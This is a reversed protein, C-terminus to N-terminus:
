NEEKLTALNMALALAGLVGAKQGLKPPVIYKDLDSLIEKTQIYGNLMTHLNSRIMPFLNMQRMVGGGLIIRSPSLMLVVAQLAQAIYDAELDWAPHNEPLNEGPSDWRSKISPGSALCEFCDHHFPCIGKFPDVILDHKLFIHGMEPHLMGHLPKGDIIAGGGIGTGITFYVLNKLGIGAGWTLEGLAAANVDTDIHVPVGLRASIVDPINTNRWAVKPTTTISGYTESNKDLDLPGFCGIGISKLSIELTDMQDIFFKEVKRLTINPDITEIRCESLINKPSSGIICIFKTGGAEIGGFYEM